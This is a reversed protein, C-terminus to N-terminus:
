KQLLLWLVRADQQNASDKAFAAPFLFIHMWSLLHRALRPMAYWMDALKGIAGGILYGYSILHLGTPEVLRSIATPLDYWRQFWKGWKGEKTVVNYPVSLFCVGEPKLIRGIERGMHTDGNGPLHEITSICTVTYFSSNSFPQRTGDAIVISLKEDCGIARCVWRKQLTVCYDIDLISVRYGQQLLFAPFPSRYSGIDLIPERLGTSALNIYAETYEFCRSIDIGQLKHTWSMRSNLLYIQKLIGYRDSFRM